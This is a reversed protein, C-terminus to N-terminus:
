DRSEVYTSFEWVIQNGFEPLTVDFHCEGAEVGRLSFKNAGSKDVEFDLKSSPGTCTEPTIITVFLKFEFCIPWIQGDPVYRVPELEITTTSGRRLLQEVPLFDILEQSIVQVGLQERAGNSNPENATVRIPGAEGIPPLFLGSEDCHVDELEYPEFTVPCQRTSGVLVDRGASRREMELSIPRGQVYAANVADTCVHAITLESVRAVRIETHDTIDGDPGRATVTLRAVGEKKGQLMVGHPQQNSPYAGLIEEDSVSVSVVKEVTKDDLGEVFIAMGTGMAIPRTFDRSGDAPNYYFQLHGEAGAQKARSDCGISFVLILAMGLAWWSTKM